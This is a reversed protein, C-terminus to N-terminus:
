SSSLYDDDSEGDNLVIECQPLGHKLIMNILQNRSRGTKRAIREIEMTTKREVRITFTDYGEEGKPPVPTIKLKKEM